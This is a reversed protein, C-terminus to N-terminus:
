RLLQQLMATRVMSIIYVTHVNQVQLEIFVDPKRTHQNLNPVPLFFKVYYTLLHSALLRKVIEALQKRKIEKKLMNIFCEGPQRWRKEWGTM